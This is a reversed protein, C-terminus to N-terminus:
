QFAELSLNKVPFFGFSLMGLSNIFHSHPDIFSPMLTKGKLDMMEHGNGAIKMAENSGGVFLIEGDRVVVAEAYEPNEGVMTLIDGGYYVVANNELQQKEKEKCSFLLCIGLILLLTKKTKM